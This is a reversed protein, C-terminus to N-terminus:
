QVFIFNYFLYHFHDIQPLEIGGTFFSFLSDCSFGSSYIHKHCDVSDQSHRPGGSMKEMFGWLRNKNSINKVQQKRPLSVKKKM